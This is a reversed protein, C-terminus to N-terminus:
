DLLLYDKICNQMAKHRPTNRNGFKSLLKDQMVWEESTDKELDTGKELNVLEVVYCSMNSQWEPNKM